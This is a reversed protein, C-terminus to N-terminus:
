GALRGLKVEIAEVRRALAGITEVPKHGLADRILGNMWETRTLGLGSCVLDVEDAVSPDVRFGITVKSITSAM